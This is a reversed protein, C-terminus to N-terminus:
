RQPPQEDHTLKMAAGSASQQRELIQAIGIPLFYLTALSVVATLFVEVALAWYDPVWLVLVEFIHSLGCLFIFAAFMGLLWRPVAWIAQSAALMMFPIGFYAFATSLHGIVTLWLLKSEWALCFGHPTFQSADM